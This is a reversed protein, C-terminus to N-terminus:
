FLLKRRLSKINAGDIPRSGFGVTNWYHWHDLANHYIEKTSLGLSAYLRAKFILFKSLIKNLFQLAKLSRNSREGKYRFDVFFFLNVISRKEIHNRVDNNYKM